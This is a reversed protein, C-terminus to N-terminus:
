STRSGTLCKNHNSLNGFGIDCKTGKNPRVRYTGAQGAYSGTVESGVAHDKVETAGTAFGSGTIFKANEAIAGINEENVATGKTPPTGTETTSSKVKMVM